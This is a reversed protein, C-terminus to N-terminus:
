RTSAYAIGKDIVDYATVVGPQLAALEQIRKRFQNPGEVKKRAAYQEDTEHAHREIHDLSKISHMIDERVIGGRNFSAVALFTGKIKELRESNLIPDIHNQDGGSGSGILKVTFDPVVVKKEGKALTKAGGKRLRGHYFRSIAQAILKKEASIAGIANEPLKFLLDVTFMRVLHLGMRLGTHAKNADDKLEKIDKASLVVDSPYTKLFLRQQRQRAMADGDGTYSEELAQKTFKYAHWPFQFTPYKGIRDRVWELTKQTSAFTFFSNFNGAFAMAGHNGLRDEYQDINQTMYFALAGKSRAKALVDKEPVSGNGGSGAGVFGAAEDVELLVPRQNIDKKWDAPRTLIARFFRRKALDIFFAGPVGHESKSLSLAVVAGRMCATVDAGHEKELWTRLDPHGTAIDLWSSVTSRINARTVGDMAPIVETAEAIADSLMLGRGREKRDLLNVVENELHRNKYYSLDKLWAIAGGQVPVKPATSPVKVEPDPIGTLFEQDMVYRKCFNMLNAYTWVFKRVFQPPLPRDNRKYTAVLDAYSKFATIEGTKPNQVRVKRARAEMDEMERDRLGELLTAATLIWKFATNNFFPNGNKGADNMEALSSAVDNAALGEIPAISVCGAGLGVELLEVGVKDLGMRRATTIADNGLEGKDDMCFVGACNRWKGDPGVSGFAMIQQLFPLGEGYSKGQGPNGFGGIHKGLDDVTGGMPMGADPAYPHGWERFWGTAVGLTIFPGNKALDSAAAIQDARNKRYETFNPKGVYKVPMPRPGLGRTAIRGELFPRVLMAVAGIAILPAAVSAPLVAALLVMLIALGLTPKVTARMVYPWSREFLPLTFRAYAAQVGVFLGLGIWPRMSFGPLLAILLMSLLTLFPHAYFILSEVLSSGGYGTEDDDGDGIKIVSTLPLNNFTIATNPQVDCLDHPVKDRLHEPVGLHYTFYEEDREHREERIAELDKKFWRGLPGDALSTAYTYAINSM